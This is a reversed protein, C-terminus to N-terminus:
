FDDQVELKDTPMAAVTHQFSPSVRREFHAASCWRYHSAVSVLRHHVPNQNVYRLRALYSREFTLHTDWYEHWVKRGPTGDLKNVAKATTMHLKNLVRRLSAPEDPSLAVFHYHNALVAWAQLEWGYEATCLQLREQLLDLREPTQFIHTQRLDEATVMYVGRELLLHLPAYHWKCRPADASDPRSHPAEAGSQKALRPERSVPLRPQGSFLPSSGGCEMNM